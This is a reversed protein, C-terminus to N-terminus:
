KSLWASIKEVTAARNKGWWAQDIVIPANKGTGENETPLFKVWPSAADLGTANPNVGGYAIFNGIAKQNEVIYGILKNANEVNKAGKPIYLYDCSQVQGGWAIAVPQGAQAALATRGNYCTGMAAEGSGVDTLCQADDAMVVLQSKIKDFVKLARDVDLPYLKDAAVGDSVLAAELFGAWGNDISQIDRQGKVSPDFFTTFGAPATKGKFTDTNYAVITSFTFLPVAQKYAPFAASEFAKCDVITCDINELQANTEAGQDVGGQVVDWTVAKADVMAQVKAWSPPGDQVVKITSASTFPDFWADTEAKAGTGGYNAFTVSGSGAYKSGDGGAAGSSSGGAGGSSSGGCAALTLALVASAAVAAIRTHRM